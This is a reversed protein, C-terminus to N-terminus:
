QSCNNLESKLQNLRQRYFNIDSLLKMKQEETYRPDRSNNEAHAINAQISSIEMRLESCPRGTQEPSQPQNIIVCGDEDFPNRGPKCNKPNTNKNDSYGSNSDSNYFTEGNYACRIVLNPKNQVNWRCNEQAQERTYGAADSGSVRKGNFYLEYGTGAQVGARESFTQGNYVCRIAIDPKTQMNFRCNDQAQQRTYHAADPGSVRQQNNFYLEYGAAVSVAPQMTIIAAVIIASKVKKM